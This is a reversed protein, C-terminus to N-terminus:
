RLAVHSLSPPHLRVQKRMALIKALGAHHDAHAHSVYVVKLSRLVDWVNEEGEFGFFRCMQGWTGEGCDMIVNGKGPIQLLM